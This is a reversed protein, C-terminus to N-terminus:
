WAGDGRGNSWGRFLVFRPFFAFLFQSFLPFYRFDIVPWKDGTEGDTICLIGGGCAGTYLRYNYSLVKLCDVYALSTPFFM